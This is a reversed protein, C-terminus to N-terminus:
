TDVGNRLMAEPVHCSLRDFRTEPLSPVNRPTTLPTTSSADNSSTKSFTASPRCAETEMKRSSPEIMAQKGCRSIAKPALTALPSKYVRKMDCFSSPTARCVLATSVDVPHQRDDMRGVKRDRRDDGHRHVVDEGIPEMLRFRQREAGRDNDQRDGEPRDPEGDIDFPEGVRLRALGNLGLERDLVLPEVVRHVVDHLTQRHVIPAIRQDGAVFAVGLNISQGVFQRPRPDRARLDEGIAAIVAKALGSLSGRLLGVAADQDDAFQRVPANDRLSLLLEGVASPHRRVLVDGHAVSGLLLDLFHRHLSARVPSDFRTSNM